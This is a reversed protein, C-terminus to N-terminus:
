QSGTSRPLPPCVWCSQLVTMGSCCSVTTQVVRCTQTPTPLLATPEVQVMLSTAKSDDCKWSGLSVWVNDELSSSLDCLILKVCCQPLLRKADGRGDALTGYGGV